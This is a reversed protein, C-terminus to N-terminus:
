ISIPFPLTLGFSVGITGHQEKSASRFFDKVATCSPKQLKHFEQCAFSVGIASPPSGFFYSGLMYIIPPCYWPQLGGAPPAVACM